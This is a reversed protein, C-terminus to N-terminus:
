VKILMVEEGSWSEVESNEVKDLYEMLEKIENKDKVYESKGNYLNIKIFM